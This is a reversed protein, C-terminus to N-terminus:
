KLKTKLETLENQLKANQEQLQDLKIQHKLLYLTLEEIKELLKMDMEGLQIGDTEMEKASPINPLHGHVKIYNQVEELSKLNYGEKFVYDPGPVLLDVKVEEAHINGKVTLKSDPSKTGIGVEGTTRITLEPIHQITGSGDTITNNQSIYFDPSNSGGNYLLGANWLYQNAQGFSIIAMDKGESGRDLKLISSGRASPNNILVESQVELKSAPDTTGIGINGDTKIKLFTTTFDDKGFDFGNGDSIRLGYTYSETNAGGHKIYFYDGIGSLWGSRLMPRNYNGDNVSFSFDTTINSVQGSPSTSVQAHGYGFLLLAIAHIIYKQM